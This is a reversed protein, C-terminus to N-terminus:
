PTRAFMRNTAPMFIPDRAPAPNCDFLLSNFGSKGKIRPTRMRVVRRKSYTATTTCICTRLDGARSVCASGLASVDVCACLACVCACLCACVCKHVYACVSVSAAMGRRWVGTWGGMWARGLHAKKPVRSFAVSRVRLVEIHEDVTIENEFDHNIKVSTHPEFADVM